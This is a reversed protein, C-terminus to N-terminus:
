SKVEQKILNVFEHIRTNMNEELLCKRECLNVTEIIRESYYKIRDEKYRMNYINSNKM